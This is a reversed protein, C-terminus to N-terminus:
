LEISRATVRGKFLVYSLPILIIPSLSKLTSNYINMELVKAHEHTLGAFCNWGRSQHAYYESLCNAMM